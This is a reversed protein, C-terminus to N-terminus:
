IITFDIVKTKGNEDDFYIKYFIYGGNTEIDSVKTEFKLYLDLKEQLIQKLRIKPYLIYDTIFSKIFVEILMGKYNKTELKLMTEM